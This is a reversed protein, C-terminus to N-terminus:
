WPVRRGHRDVFEGSPRREGDLLLEVLHRATEEASSPAEPGGMRTAVWGPDIATVTVGAPALEAAMKRTAMNLAAKTVAYGMSRGDEVLGLSARGTSINAIQGAASRKLLPLFARCTLTPGVVNVVFMRTLAAGDLQELPGKSATPPSSPDRNVAGCNVLLDIRELEGECRRAAEDISDPDAYDLRVILGRNGHRRLLSRCGDEDTPQRLGLAVTADRSLLAEALAAGLGRNAGTVLAHLTTM